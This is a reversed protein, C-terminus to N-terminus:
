PHRYSIDQAMGLQIAALNSPTDDIVGCRDLSYAVVRSAPDTGFDTPKNETLFLFARRNPLLHEPLTTPRHPPYGEEGAFPSVDITSGPTDRLPDKWAHLIRARVLERRGYCGQYPSFSPLRDLVEVELITTADRALARPETRCTLPGDALGPYLTTPGGEWLRWGKGFPLLDGVTTCPHWRTLCSLNYGTLQVLTEHSLTPTYFIHVVEGAKGSDPRYVQYDPHLDLQGVGNGMVGPEHSGSRPYESLNSRTTAGLLIVTAFHYPPGTDEVEMVMSSDARVIKGDFVQLQVGLECIRYRSRSLPKLLYSLATFIKQHKEFVFVNNNNNFFNRILPSYPDWVSISYNCAVSTCSGEYQGWRGWRSMLKQADAWTSQTPHLRHYDALLHSMRWRTIWMPMAIFVIWLLILTGAAALLALSTKVLIRRMM